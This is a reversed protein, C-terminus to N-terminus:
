RAYSIAKCTTEKLSTIQISCQAFLDADAAVIYGDHGVGDARVKTPIGEIEASTKGTVYDTFNKCQIYWELKCDAAYKAMNYDEKLERKTGKFEASDIEGATTIYIKPQTADALVALTKGGAVVVAAFDSYMLVSGVKEATAAVSEAGTSNVAVGVTFDTASTTFTKGQEDKCAKVIAEKFDTIQISCQAFLKEDAAVIYGPHLGDDREKTAIGEVEAATKGVVYQELNKVQVYWELKCDAAYKAMNYDDGLEMKTKYAADTVVAGGEINMKNQVGDIRCAVIKGNPDTVVAAVVGDVQANGAASSDTSTVIGMGFKYTVEKKGCACLSAVMVVALALAIIRKM